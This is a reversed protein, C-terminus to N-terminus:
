DVRATIIKGISEPAVPGVPWARPQLEFMWVSGDDTMGVVRLHAHTSVARWCEDPMVGPQQLSTVVVAVRRLLAEDVSGWDPATACVEVSPTTDLGAIM